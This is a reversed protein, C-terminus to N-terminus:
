ISDYDGGWMTWNRADRFLDLPLGSDLPVLQVSFDGWSWVFGARRLAQYYWTGPPAQAAALEAGEARLREATARILTGIVTPDSGRALLEAIYGLTNHPSREVRYVAYGVPVEAQQALLVRYTFTPCAFYRWTVWARDRIISIGANPACREWVADLEPGVREVVRVKLSPDVPIRRDWTWTWLSDLPTLYALPQMGLRRALIATPRLPRILWRLPFLPVWGLAPARSGWQDNILGIVFHIGADRWASYMRRGVQTLLGRRRYEPATMTDVSVMATSRDTPLQYSIPIGGSHFIPVNGDVAIWDNPAPSTRQQLKWQFHAETISRGFARRFLEVLQAVDGAQSPRITWQTDDNHM